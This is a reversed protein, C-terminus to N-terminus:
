AAVATRCIADLGADIGTWHFGVLAAVASPVMPAKIASAPGEVTRLGPLRAALAAALDRDSVAVPSCLHVPRVRGPGAVIRALAPALDPVFTWDRRPNAANVTIAQGASAADVWSQLMSVRARTNRAVEHPGYLYGLRVVHTECVGTLAGPVLVEGAKKAASYPGEATAVDTDTLDPSGDTEGFVGSSSLFVFARPRTRGAHRLMALLPAMNATVHEAITLGMAAPNTTLAAAHIMVDAQPLDRLALDGQTLDAEILTVGSLRARTAADFSLDLGTVGAGQSAFGAALASGVFGGAGTILVRTQSM